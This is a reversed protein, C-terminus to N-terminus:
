DVPMRYVLDYRERPLVIDATEVPLGEAYYTRTVVLVHAGRTPLKLAAVEVSSAARGTVREENLDIRVGIADFRAVVGVAQGDEPWEIPTGGTIALPERSWSMQIPEGDAHFVYRTSMIPAGPEIALRRATELDATARESRHEWGGQHGAAAADRAFPSTSGPTTRQDRGHGHRTLRRIRRVYVGSGSRGEVLGDSKLQAIAWKAVTRSVGYQAMLKTESPLKDGPQLDGSSIAARLEAAIRAYAPVAEPM